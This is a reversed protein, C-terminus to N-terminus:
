RPLVRIQGDADDIITELPILPASRGNPNFDEIIVDRLIQGSARSIVVERLHVANEARILARNLMTRRVSTIRYGERDLAQVARAFRGQPDPLDAIADLSSLPIGDGIDQAVVGSATLCM